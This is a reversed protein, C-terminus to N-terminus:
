VSFVIGRAPVLSLVRRWNEGLGRQCASKKNSLKQLSHTVRLPTQAFPSPDPAGKRLQPRNPPRHLPLYPPEPGVSCTRLSVNCYHNSILDTQASVARVAHLRLSNASDWINWYELQPWAFSAARCSGPFSWLTSLNSYFM